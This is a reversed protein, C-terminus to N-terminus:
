DLPFLVDEPRIRDLGPLTAGSRRVFDIEGEIDRATLTKGNWAASESPYVIDLIQPSLDPFVRATAARVDAPREVIAKRFDAFVAALRRALDRDKEAKERLMQLQSSTANVAGEPLEGKPGSIWVVGKGGAIPGAWFPASALYGDISGSELAAPMASQAMYTFRMTAGATAAANKFGLTSGAMADPTAILLNDIAKLRAAPPVDPSVGLKDAVSKSLVMTTAFGGYVNAIIALRQGRVIAPAVTGFGVTVADASGSILAALATTGSDMPVVKASLGHKEFLGMEKAVRPSAPGLSSSSLAITVERLKQASAGSAAVTLMVGLAGRRSLRTIM